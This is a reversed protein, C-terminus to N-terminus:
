DRARRVPKSLIHDLSYRGPGLLILALFAVLYLLAMEPKGWKQLTEASIDALDLSVMLQRHAQHRGFAAVAMTFGAFGAAVRTGLGLAVCLGGAFESLAAAWSFVVPMPFGLSSTGQILREGQGSALSAVKGWGHLLALGLGCLRLLLLSVDQRKM